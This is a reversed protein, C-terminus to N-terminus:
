RSGERSFVNVLNGAPDRFIMSRNGRARRSRGCSALSISNTGPSWGKASLQAADSETHGARGQRHRRGPPVPLSPLAVTFAGFVRSAAGPQLVGATTLGDRNTRTASPGIVLTSLGTM